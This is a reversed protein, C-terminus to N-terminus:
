KRFRGSKTIIMENVLSHFKRWLERDELEIRPEDKVGDDVYILPTNPLKLITPKQNSHAVHQQGILAANM